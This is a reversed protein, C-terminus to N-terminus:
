FTPMLYADHRNCLYLLYCAFACWFISNLCPKCRSLPVPLSCSRPPTLCCKQVSIPSSAKFYPYMILMSTFISPHCPNFDYRVFVCYLIYKLCFKCPTSSPPAISSSISSDNDRLLSPFSSAKFPLNLTLM